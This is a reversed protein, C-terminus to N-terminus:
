KTSLIYVMNQDEDFKKKYFKNKVLRQIMKEINSYLGLLGIGFKYDTVLLFIIFTLKRNNKSAMDLWKEVKDLIYNTYIKSVPIRITYHGSKVNVDNFSGMSGFYKDVDPFLSFYTKKNNIVFPNGLLEISKDYLKKLSNNKIILEHHSANKDYKSHLLYYTSNYVVLLYYMDRNFHKGTYIKKLRNSYKEEIFYYIPIEVGINRTTIGINQIYYAFTDIPLKNVINKEKYLYYINKKTNKFVKKKTKVKYEKNSYKSIFPPYHHLYAYKVLKKINTDNFTKKIIQKIDKIPIKKKCYDKFLISIWEQLYTELLLINDMSKPLFKNKNKKNVNEILCYYMLDISITFFGRSIYRISDPNSKIKKTKFYKLINNELNIMLYKSILKNSFISFMDDFINIKEKIKKKVNYINSM